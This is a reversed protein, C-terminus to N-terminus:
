RTVFSKVKTWKSYYTQSGHHYVSRMKVYYRTKSKLGNIETICKSKTAAGKKVNKTFKKNTAVILEHSNATGKYMNWKLTVKKYGPIPNKLVPKKVKVNTTKVSVTKSWDSYLVKKGNATDVTLTNRYRFYYKKNKKLKNVTIFNGTATVTKVKKFSRSTSYQVEADKSTGYMTIVNNSVTRKSFSSSPKSPWKLFISASYKSDGSVSAVIEVGSIFGDYGEFIFNPLIMGTNNARYTYSNFSKGSSTKYTITKGAKDKFTLKVDAPIKGCSLIYSNDDTIDKIWIDDIYYQVHSQATKTTVYVIQDNFQVATWNEDSKDVDVYVKAGDGLYGDIKTSNTSKESYMRDAGITVSPSYIYAKAYNEPLKLDKNENIYKYINLYKSNVYVYYYKYGMYYTDNSGCFKVKYYEQTDGEKASKVPTADAVLLRTNTGVAYCPGAGTNGPTQYLFADKSIYGLGVEKDTTKVPIDNEFLNIWVHDRDMKYFGAPHTHLLLWNKCYGTSNGEFNKLGTSWIYVWEDDYDVVQFKEGEYAFFEDFYADSPWGINKDSVAYNITGVIGPTHHLNYLHQINGRVIWGRDIKQGQIYVNDREEESDVYCKVAVPNGSGYSKDVRDNGGHVFAEGLVEIGSVCNKLQKNTGLGPGNINQSDGNYWKLSPAPEGTQSIAHAQGPTICVATLIIIMCLLMTSMTQLFKRQETM